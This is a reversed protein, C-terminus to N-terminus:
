DGGGGREERESRRRNEKGPAVGAEKTKRNREIALSARLRSLRTNYFFLVFLDCVSSLLQIIRALFYLM